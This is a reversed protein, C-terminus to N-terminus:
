VALFPAGDVSSLRILMPGGMSLLAGIESLAVFTQEAQVGAHEAAQDIWASLEGIPLESPLVVPESVVVPLGHHRALAQVAEAARAAPWAATGLALVTLEPRTNM